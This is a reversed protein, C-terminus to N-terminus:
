SVAAPPQTGAPGWPEEHPTAPSLCGFSLWDQLSPSFSSLDQPWVLLFVAFPHISGSCATLTEFASSTLLSKGLGLSEKQLLKHGCQPEHM